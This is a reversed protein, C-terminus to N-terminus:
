RKSREPPTSQAQQLPSVPWVPSLWDDRTHMHMDTLGPMLFAGEGNIIKSNRPAEINNSPGIQIIKKGKILVTQNKIIKEETM